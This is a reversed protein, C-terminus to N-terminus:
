TKLLYSIKKRPDKSGLKITGKGIINASNDNGFSVPRDIEKNWTIFKNKDGTM